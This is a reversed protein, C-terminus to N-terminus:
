HNGYSYGGKYFFSNRLAKDIRRMNENSLHCIFRWNDRVDMTMVQECRAISPRLGYANIRAHTPLISERNTTTLPVLITTQSHYNGVDNQVVVWPRKGSQIHSDPLIPTYIEVVDGRKFKGM